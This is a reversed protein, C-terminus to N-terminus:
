KQTFIRTGKKNSTVIDTKGDKNFDEFWIQTGSASDEDIVHTQMQVKGKGIKEPRVYLIVAADFEGPDKGLHALYRKGTVYELVGDKDLDTAAISHLQSYAMSIERKIFNIEKGKKQNEFWWLGYRHASSGIIDNDGDGDFDNVHMHSFTLGRGEVDALSDLPVAHFRWKTNDRNASLNEYWGKATLIDQKGDKNVDGIGLGHGMGGPAFYITERYKVSYTLTDPHGIVNAKWLQTPDDPISFWSLTYKNNGIQNGALIVPKGDSFIDVMQPSENHFLEIALYEQWLNNFKGAPNRYWYCPGGQTNMTIVDLWGDRDIDKVFNAISRAYYSAGSGRPRTPDPMMGYYLGLPRIEYRKWDPAKYWVDGAIIDMLGDRDIDGTTVGESVYTSDIVVKDFSIKKTQSYATNLSVLLYISSLFIKM